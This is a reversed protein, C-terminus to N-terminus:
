IGSHQYSVNYIEVRLYCKPLKPLGEGVPTSFKRKM